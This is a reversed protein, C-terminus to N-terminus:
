RKLALLFLGFLAGFVATGLIDRASEDALNIIPGSLLLGAIACGFAVLSRLLGCSCRLIYEGIMDAGCM